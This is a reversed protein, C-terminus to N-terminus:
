KKPSSSVVLMFSWTPHLHPVLSSQKALDEQGVGWRAQVMIALQRGVAMPNCVLWIKLLLLLIDAKM